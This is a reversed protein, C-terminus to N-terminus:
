HPKTVTKCLINANYPFVKESFRVHQLGYSFVWLPVEGNRKGKDNTVAMRSKTETSKVVKHMSEHLIQKKKQSQTMECLMIVDKPNMRTTHQIVTGKKLSYTTNIYYM